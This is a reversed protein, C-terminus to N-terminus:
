PRLTVELPRELRFTLATESDVGEIMRIVLNTGAPLDVAGRAPPAERPPGAEPRMVNEDNRRLVPRNDADDNSNRRPVPRSEAEPPPLTSDRGFEIREIDGVDM